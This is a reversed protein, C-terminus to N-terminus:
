EALAKRLNQLAAMDAAALPLKSLRLLEADLAAGKVALGTTMATEVSAMDSTKKGVQQNAAIQELQTTFDKDLQLYTPWIQLIKALAAAAQVPATVAALTATMQDVTALLKPGVQPNFPQALLPHAGVTSVVPTSVVATGNVHNATDTASKAATNATDTVSKAAEKTKCAVDTWKCAAANFGVTAIFLGLLLKSALTTTILPTKM